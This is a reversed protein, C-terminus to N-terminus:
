AAKEQMLHAIARELDPEGTREKIAQQRGLTHVRGDLLFAITDALAEVEGMNHSTLIVTKGADRERRIKEKLISSAVPDLSATPEDLILIDPHFLFAIVANIKQRTGGSLTRMPRDMEHELGFLEFLEDDTGSPNGRLDRLLAVLERMRLNEPFRAIQPMYGIRQRYAWGADLKEGDLFIRGGSPRVLGLICKILTTKGSGNHGLIATIETREIPLNLGRLVDRKGFRKEIGDIQIMPKGIDIM